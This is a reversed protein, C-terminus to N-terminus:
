ATQTSKRVSRSTPASLLGGVIMIAVSNRVAQPSGNGILAGLTSAGYQELHQVSGVLAGTLPVYRDLAPLHLMARDQQDRVITFRALPQLTDDADLSSAYLWLTIALERMSSLSPCGQGFSRNMVRVRQLIEDAGIEGTFSDPILRIADAVENAIPYGFSDPDFYQFQLGDREPTEYMQSGPRIHFPLINVMIAALEDIALDEYGSAFLREYFRPVAQQFRQNSPQTLQHMQSIMGAVMDRTEGPFGTIVNADVHIGADRLVTVDHLIGQTDQKRGVAQLISPDLSDVGMRVFYCGARAIRNAQDRSLLENRGGRYYSVWRINLPTLAECLEWFWRQDANVLSDCFFFLRAGHRARLLKVDRAVQEVGMSQFRDRHESCYRCRFPCGRTAHIPLTFPIYHRFDLNLFDPTGLEDMEAPAPLTFAENGPRIVGPVSCPDRGTAFANLLAPLIPEADGLALADFAGTRALYRALHQSQYVSPGGIIVPLQPKLRKLLLALLLNAYLNTYVTAALVVVDAQLLRPAYDGVVRHVASYTELNDIPSTCLDLSLDQITKRDDDSLELLAEVSAGSAFKHRLRDMPRFQPAEMVWSRCCNLYEKWRNKTNILPRLDHVRVSHGHRMLETKICAAALCPFLRKLQDALYFPSVVVDVRM